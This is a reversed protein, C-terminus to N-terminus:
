WPGTAGFRPKPKPIDEGADLTPHCCCDVMVRPWLLGAAKRCNAEM